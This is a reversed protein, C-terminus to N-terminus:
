RDKRRKMEMAFISSIVLANPCVELRDRGSKM